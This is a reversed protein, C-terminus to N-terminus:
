ANFSNRDREIQAVVKKKAFKHMKICFYILIVFCLGGLYENITSGLAVANYIGHAIVPVLLVCAKVLWNMPEPKSEQRWVYLGLLIAPLLAATLILIINM